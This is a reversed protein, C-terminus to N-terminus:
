ADLEEDLQRLYDCNSVDLGWARLEVELQERTAVLDVDSPTSVMFHRVVGEEVEELIEPDPQQSSAPSALGLWGLALLAAARHARDPIPSFTTM